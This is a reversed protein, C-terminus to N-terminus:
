GVKGGFLGGLARGVRRTSTGALYSNAILAAARQYRKRGGLAAEAEAEVLAEIFSRVRFRIADELPDFWDEGSFAVFSEEATTRRM